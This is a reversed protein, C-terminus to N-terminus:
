RPRRMREIDYERPDAGVAKMAKTFYDIQDSIKFESNIMKDVNKETPHWCEDRTCLSKKIKEGLARAQKYLSNKVQSSLKTENGKEDVIKEPQGTTFFGTDEFENGSEFQADFTLSESLKGSIRETEKAYRERDSDSCTNLKSEGFGAGSVSFSKNLYKM